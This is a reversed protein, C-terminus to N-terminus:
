EILILLWIMIELWKFLFKDFVSFVVSLFEFVFVFWNKKFLVFVFVFFILKIVVYFVFFRLLVSLKVKVVLKVLVFIILKNVGDFLLRLVIGIFFINEVCFVDIILFYCGFFWM